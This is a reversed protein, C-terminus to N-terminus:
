NNVFWYNQVEEIKITDLIELHYFKYHAFM